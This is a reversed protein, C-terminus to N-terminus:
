VHARGIEQPRSRSERSTTYLPVSVDQSIESRSAAVSYQQLNCTFVRPPIKMQSHRQSHFTSDAEGENKKERERTFCM